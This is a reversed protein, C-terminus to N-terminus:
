TTSTVEEMAPKLGAHAVQPLAARAAMPAGECGCVLLVNTPSQESM